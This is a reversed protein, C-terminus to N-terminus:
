KLYSYIIPLLPLPPTGPLPLLVYNSVEKGEQDIGSYINMLPKSRTFINKQKNAM